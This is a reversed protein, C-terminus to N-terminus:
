GYNKLWYEVQTAGHEVKLFTFDPDKGAQRLAIKDKKSIEGTFLIYRFDKKLKDWAAKVFPEATGENIRYDVIYRKITEDKLADIAEEVTECVIPICGSNETYTKLLFADPKFDELIIIKESKPVTENNSFILERQKELSLHKWIEPNRLEEQIENLVDDVQNECFTTILENMSKGRYSAIYNLKEYLSNIVRLSIRIISNNETM